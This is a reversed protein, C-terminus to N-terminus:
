QKRPKRPRGRRKKQKEPKSEEQTSVNVVDQFNHIKHGFGSDTTIDYELGGINPVYDIDTEDESLIQGGQRKADMQERFSPIRAKPDGIPKQDSGGITVGCSSCFNPKAGAYDM